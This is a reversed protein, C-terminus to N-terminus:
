NWHWNGGVGDATEICRDRLGLARMRNIAYLGGFGAGVVLVDVSEHPASGTPMVPHDHPMDEGSILSANRSIAGVCPASSQVGSRRPSTGTITTSVDLTQLLNKDNEISFLDGARRPPHHRYKGCLRRPREHLDSFYEIVPGTRVQYRRIYFVFI